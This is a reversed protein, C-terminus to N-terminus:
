PRSSVSRPICANMFALVTHTPGGLASCRWPSVEVAESYAGGRGQAGRHDRVTSAEVTRSTEPSTTLPKECLTPKGAHLAKLVLDEHTFDPTAIVVADVEPDEM